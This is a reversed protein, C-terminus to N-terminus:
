ISGFGLFDFFNLKRQGKFTVSCGTRRKVARYSRYPDAVAAAHRQVWDKVAVEQWFEENYTLIVEDNQCYNVIFYGCRQV